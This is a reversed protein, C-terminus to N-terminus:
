AALLRAATLAYIKACEVIRSIKVFEDPGHSVALIGPGYAYAPVGRQAYFRTELLGPCTEVVPPEGTVQGIAESLARGLPQDVPTTSSRGEQFVTVEDRAELLGRVLELLYVKEAEFDEDANTRRDITFRCADPVVNFNSGADVRGGVLLISGRADLERKLAFLRDLLPMAREVANTGHRMLGVHSARGRVVVEISLAGRSANWIRGSTPEPLIMGVGDRGLAGSAALRASGGAGGTEEDPVFLLSLRGKLPAGSRALADAALLMAVLGSKMDSSGRGFLADGEIRPIFQDPAYAPVVDYHGHLYLVPGREGISTRLATRPPEGDIAIREHALGLGEAAAELAAVCSAYERGPPNESAVAVLDSLLRPVLHGREDVCDLLAAPEFTNM